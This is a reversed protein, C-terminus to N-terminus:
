DDYYNNIIRDSRTQKNNYNVLSENFLSHYAHQININIYEHNLHVREKDVNSAIFTRSNHTLSGKGVVISISAKM